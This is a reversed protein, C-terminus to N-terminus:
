RQSIDKHNSTMFSKAYDFGTAQRDLGYSAFGLSKSANDGYLFNFIIGYDISEHNKSYFNDLFEFDNRDLYNSNENCM